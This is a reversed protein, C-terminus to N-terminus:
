TRVYKDFAKVTYISTQTLDSQTKITVKKELLSRLAIYESHIMIHPDNPATFYFKLVKFGNATANIPDIDSYQEKTEKSLEVTFATKTLKCKCNYHKSEAVDILMLSNNEASVVKSELPRSEISYLNDVLPDKKVYFMSWNNDELIKVQEDDFERVHWGDKLEIDEKSISVITGDALFYVKPTKSLEQKILGALGGAAEKAQQFRLRREEAEKSVM